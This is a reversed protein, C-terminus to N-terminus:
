ALRKKVRPGFRHVAPHGIRVFWIQADPLRALLRAGATV